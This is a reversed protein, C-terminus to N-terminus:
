EKAVLADLKSDSAPYQPCITAACALEPKYTPQTEAVHPHGSGASGSFPRQKASAPTVRGSGSPADMSAPPPVQQLNTLRQKVREGPQLLYVKTEEPRHQEQHQKYQNWTNWTNWYGDKRDATAQTRYKNRLGIRLDDGSLRFDRNPNAILVAKPPAPTLTVTGAMVM